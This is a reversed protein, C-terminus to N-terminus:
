FGMMKRGTVGTGGVAKWIDSKMLRCEVMYWGTAVESSSRLVSALALALALLIRLAVGRDQQIGLGAQDGVM